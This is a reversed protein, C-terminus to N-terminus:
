FRFNAGLKLQKLDAELMGDTQPVKGFTTDAGELFVSWSRSLRYDVGIGITHGELTPAYDRGNVVVDAQARTYGATGYVLWAGQAYGARLFLTAAQDLKFQADVDSPLVMKKFQPTLEGRASGLNVEVGAGFVWPGRMLDYGARLAAGTGDADAFHRSLGTSSILAGFDGAASFQTEDRTLMGGIYPGSWEVSDSISQAAAPAAVSFALSAACLIPAAISKM